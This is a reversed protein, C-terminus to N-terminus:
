SGEVLHQNNRINSVRNQGPLPGNSGLVGGVIIILNDGTTVQPLFTQAVVFNWHNRISSVRNQGLCTGKSRVMSGIILILTDSTTLQTTTDKTVVIIHFEIICGITTHSM